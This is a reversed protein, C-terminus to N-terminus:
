PLLAEPWGVFTYHASHRSGCPSVWSSWGKEESTASSDNADPCSFWALVLAGPRASPALGASPQTCQSSACNGPNAEQPWHCQRYIILVPLVLTPARPKERVRLASLTTATLGASRVFCNFTMLRHEWVCWWGSVLRSRASVWSLQPDLHQPRSLLLVLHLVSSIQCSSPPPSGPSPFCRGAEFPGPPPLTLRWPEFLSSGGKSGM